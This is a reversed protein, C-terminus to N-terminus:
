VLKKIAEEYMKGVITPTFNEKFRLYAIEGLKKTEEKDEILNILTEKLVNVNEPSICIGCDGIIEKRTIDDDTIIACSNAMAEILVLGYSEIKPVLVFINSKSMLNKIEYHPLKSWWNIKYNSNTKPKYKSVINIEINNKKFVLEDLQNLASILEPLGKRVGDYGVFLISIKNGDKLTIENYNKLSPLFFPISISKKDFDPKYYLFREKGNLTHFHILTAKNVSQEILDADIKRDTLYGKKAIVTKDTMFGTTIICPTNNITKFFDIEKIPHGYHYIVDVDFNSPLKHTLFKFKMHFLKSLLKDLNFTFTYLPHSLFVTEIETFEEILKFQRVMNYDTNHFGIIFSPCYIGLKIKKEM